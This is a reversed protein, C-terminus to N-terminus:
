ILRIGNFHTQDSVAVISGSHTTPNYPFTWQMIRQNITDVIILDKQSTVIVRSPYNLENLASGRSTNGAVTRGTKGDKEFYVVRHNGSDVVFINENEDAIVDEPYSLSKDFGAATVITGNPYRKQIRHNGTDAVYIIQSNPEIFIGSPYNLNEAGQGYGGFLTLGAPDWRPNSLGKHM